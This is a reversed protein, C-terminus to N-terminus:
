SHVWLDGPGVGQPVGREPWACLHNLGINLLGLNKGAGRLPSSLLRLCTKSPLFCGAEPLVWFLGKGKIYIRFIDDKVYSMAMSLEEDSSFAVLDGDEDLNHVLCCTLVRPKETLYLSSLLASAPALPADAPRPVSACRHSGTPLPASALSGTWQLVAQFTLVGPHARPAWPLCLTHACAHTHTHAPAAATVAPWRDSQRQALQGKCLHQRPGGRVLGLGMKLQLLDGGTVPEQPSLGELLRPGAEM